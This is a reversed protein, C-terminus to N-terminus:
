KQGERCIQMVFRQRAISLMKRSLSQYVRVYPHTRRCTQSVPESVFAAKRFPHGELVVLARM